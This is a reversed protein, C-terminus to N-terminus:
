FKRVLKVFVGLGTTSQATVDSFLYYNMFQFSYHKGIDLNLDLGSNFRGYGGYGIVYGADLAASRGKWLFHLKAYYYMKAHTNFRMTLGKEFAIQKGYYVKTHMDVSGPIYSTYKARDYTTNKDLVNDISLPSVTSDLNFLDNVEVGDYHYSSDVFHHMSNANWRIFGLDRIDIRIKGAKKFYTYPMEYFLDAALGMGNQAFYSRHSTDTQYVDTMINLDLFTGDDATYLDARPMRVSINQEGSLLSAAFGYGGHTADSSRSWGFRFQQYRLFNLYFDGLGASQGKFMQNGYFITNFLDDSFKMDLHTRDFFSFALTPKNIGATSQSTYTFGVRTMGGILNSGDMKRTATYKLDEDIFNGNYFAKVFDNHITTSNLYGLASFEITQIYKKPSPALSDQAWVHCCSISILLIFFIHKTKM